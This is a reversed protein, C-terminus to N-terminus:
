ESHIKTAIGIKACTARIRRLAHVATNTGLFLIEKAHVQDEANLRLGMLKAHISVFSQTARLVSQRQLDVILRVVIMAKLRSGVRTCMQM